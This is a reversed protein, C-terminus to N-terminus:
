ASCPSWWCRCLPCVCRLVTRRDCASVPPSKTEGLLSPATRIHRSRAFAAHWGSESRLPGVRHATHERVRAPSPAHRVRHLPNSRSRQLPVLELAPAAFPRADTRRGSEPSARRCRSQQQRRQAQTSKCSHQHHHQHQHGNQSCEPRQRGHGHPRGHRRLPDLQACRPHRARAPDMSLGVPLAAMAPSTWPVCLQSALAAYVVDASDADPTYRGLEECIPQLLVSADAWAVFLAYGTAVGPECM